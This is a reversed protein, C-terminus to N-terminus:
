KEKMKTIHKQYQSVIQKRSAKEKELKKKKRSKSKKDKNAERLKKKLIIDKYSM